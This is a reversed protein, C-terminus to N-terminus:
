LKSERSERSVEDKTEESGRLTTGSTSGADVKTPVRESTEAKLSIPDGLQSPNEGNEGHLERAAKTRLTDGQKDKSRQVSPNAESGTRMNEQLYHQQVKKKEKEDKRSVM